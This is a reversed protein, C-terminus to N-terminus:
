WYRSKVAPHSLSPFAKYKDLFYEKTDIATLLVRATAINAASRLNAALQTAFPAITATLNESLPPVLLFHDITHRILDTLHASIPEPM